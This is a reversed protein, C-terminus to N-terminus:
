RFITLFLTGCLSVATFWVVECWSGLVHSMTTFKFQVPGLNMLKLIVKNIAMNCQVLSNTRTILIAISMYYRRNTTDCSSRALSLFSTDLGCHRHRDILRLVMWGGTQLKSNSVLLPVGHARVPNHQLSYVRIQPLKHLRARRNHRNQCGRENV